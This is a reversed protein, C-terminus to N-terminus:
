CWGGEGGLGGAVGSGALPPLREAGGAIGM